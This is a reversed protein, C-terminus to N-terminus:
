ADDLYEARHGTGGAYLQPQPTLVLLVPQRTRVARGGAGTLFAVPGCRHEPIHLTRALQQDHVVRGAVVAEGAVRVEGAEGAARQQGQGDEAASGQPRHQQQLIPEDAPREGGLPEVRDLEDGALQRDREVVGATRRARRTARV